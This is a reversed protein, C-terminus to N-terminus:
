KAWIFERKIREEKDETLLNVFFDYISIIYNIM